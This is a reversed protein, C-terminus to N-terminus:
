KYNIIFLRPLLFFLKGMSDICVIGAHQLSYNLYWFSNKKLKFFSLHFDYPVVCFRDANGCNGEEGWIKNIFLKKACWLTVSHKKNRSFNNNVDLSAHRPLNSHFEDGQQQKKIGILKRSSESCIDVFAPLKTCQMLLWKLLEHLTSGFLSIKKLFWPL